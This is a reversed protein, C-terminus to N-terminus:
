PQERIKKESMMSDIYKINSSLVENEKSSLDEAESREEILTKV